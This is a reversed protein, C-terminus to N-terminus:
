RASFVKSQRLDDPNNAQRQSPSPSRAQAQMLPSPPADFALEKRQQDQETHRILQALIRDPCYHQQSNFRILQLGIQQCVENKFRDNKITRAQQHSRDDLEIVCEVQKSHRNCLVFDFHKANIRNFYNYFQQPPIAPSVTILDALRVKTFILVQENLAQQLAEFFRRENTTMLDRKVVYGNMDAAESGPAATTLTRYGPGQNRNAPQPRRIASPSQKAARKNWKFLLPLLKLLLVLPILILLATNASLLEIM